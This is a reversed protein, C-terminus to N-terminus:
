PMRWSPLLPLVYTIFSTRAETHLGMDELAKDLYPTMKSVELVVSNNADIQPQNPVFTETVFELSAYESIPSALPSIPESARKLARLIPLTPKWVFLLHFFFLGM